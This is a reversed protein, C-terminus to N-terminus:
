YSVVIFVHYFMLFVILLSLSVHAILWYHSYREIVRGGSFLERNLFGLILNGIYIASLALLYAYGFTTSHLYYFLPAFVGQKKHRDYQLAAAKLRGSVRLLPMYWQAAIFVSLLLGSCARYVENEQLSELFPIKWGFLDQALFAAAMALGAYLYKRGQRIQREVFSFSYVEVDIREEPVNCRRLYAVVDENYSRPGCIYFTANRFKRVINEVKPFDLRGERESIRMCVSINEHERGARELEEAYALQDAQRVSYDVHMRVDSLGSKLLTRLPGLARTMGIGGAMCVVGKTGAVDVPHEGQPTSMYILTDKNAKSFLWNSFFGQEERKVTIERYNVEDAPSTVTYPRQMWQGGIEARVIVHQGPKMLRFMGRYPVFRFSRIEVAVDATETLTVRVWGAREKIRQLSPRCTGCVTGAGTLKVLDNVSRRGQDTQRKLEGYTLQTCHCVIDNDGFFQEEDRPLGMRGTRIFRAIQEMSVPKRNLVMDHVDGLDEWPGRAFVGVIRGNAINLERELMRKSDHFGVTAVGKVERGKAVMHFAHRGVTHSSVATIDESIRFVTTISESDMFRSAQFGLLHDGSMSWVQRLTELYERLEGHQECLKALKDGEMAVVKLDTLAKVTTNEHAEGLLSSEGFCQGSQLGAVMGEKEPRYM